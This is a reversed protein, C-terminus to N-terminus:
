GYDGLRSSDWGEEVPAKRGKRRAVAREEKEMAVDFAAELSDKHAEQREAKTMPRSREKPIPERKIVHKSVTDRWRSMDREGDDAIKDKYESSARKTAEGFDKMTAVMEQVKASRIDLAHGGEQKPVFSDPTCYKVEQPDSLAGLISKHYCLRVQKDKKKFPLLFCQCTGQKITQRIEVGM